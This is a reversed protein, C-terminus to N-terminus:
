CHIVTPLLTLMAIHDVELPHHYRLLPQFVHQPLPLRYGTETAVSLRITLTRVFLPQPEMLTWYSVM